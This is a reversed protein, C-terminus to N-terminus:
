IVGAPEHVGALEGIRALEAAAHGLSATLAPGDGAHSADPALYRELYIRLTAGETGTGSLRYVLRAGDELFVRIGQGASASGDVPDLYTFSDATTVRTGAIEQGALTALREELGAMVRAAAEGDPIFWDHRCFAHRGFRRWHDEVLRTVPRGTAAVLNLWFLVAWLGDKERAHSSSTGFSEEGCLDILGADLLNCFYRWGTPTEYCPIGLDAAVRDVARTTPMSRAVGALGAAYGPVKGAHEALVALSDGPSVVMGRGVIMNRDGDGDSAAALDGADPGNMWDVLHAADVPNPDPHLGGFDPLPVANVVSGPPAGLRRELIEVAYPGTVANLADFRLRFGPSALLSRIRDFDFLREMLAAYDAVPDVIEVEMPGAQQVGPRDLDLRGVEAVRYERLELTRRWVADTLSEPAQGGNATDFKVGFDGDPGGPNHSATLLFGGAAGRTRILHSAAPTSLMGGRGVIMRRVGNGAAVRFLVALAEANWFRGDGGAVLVQGRFDGAADFVAQLFNELYHPQRFRRVKRRLGATGPRQDDFPETPIRRVDM